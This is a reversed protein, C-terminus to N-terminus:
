EKIKAIRQRYIGFTEAPLAVGEGLQERVFAQLTQPHVSYERKMNLPKDRAALEEAFSEAEEEQDKSFEIVFKRKIIAGHGNENLWKIAPYKKEGAISARIHENVSVERGDPLKLTGEMGDMLGPIETELLRRVNTKAEDLLKEIRAVEREAHDAQDALSVISKMLNDGIAPPEDSTFDSYDFDSM